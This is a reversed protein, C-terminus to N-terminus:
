PPQFKVPKPSSVALGAKVDLLKIELRLRYLLDVHLEASEGRVVTLMRFHRTVIEIHIDHALSHLDQIRLLEIEVLDNVLANMPSM